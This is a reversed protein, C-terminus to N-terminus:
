PRGWLWAFTAFIAPPAVHLLLRTPIGTDELRALNMPAVLLVAFYVALGALV